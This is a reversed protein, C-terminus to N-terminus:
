EKEQKPFHLFQACIEIFKHAPVNNDFKLFLAKLQKLKTTEM